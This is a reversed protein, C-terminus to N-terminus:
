SAYADVWGGVAVFKGGQVQIIRAATIHIAPQEPFPVNSADYTRGAFVPVKNTRFYDLFASPTYDKLKKMVTYTTMAYSFGLESIGGIEGAFGAKTMQDRFLQADPEDASFPTIGSFALVGNAASGAPTLFNKQDILTNSGGFQANIGNAQANKVTQAMNNTGLTMTVLDAGQVAKIVQPTFDTANPDVPVERVFKVGAKQAATSIMKGYLAYVEPNNVVMSSVSTKGHQKAYLFMAAYGSTPAPHLVLAVRSKSQSPTTPDTMVSIGAAEAISISTGMAVGLNLITVVKDSVFGRVCAANKSADQGQDDCYKAEIPHGNVGGQSNIYAVAAKVGDQFAPVSNVGTVPSVVGIRIPEGSASTVSGGTAPGATSSCACLVLTAFTALATGFMRVNGVANRGILDSVLYLIQGPGGLRAQISAQRIQLGGLVRIFIEFVRGARVLEVRNVKM